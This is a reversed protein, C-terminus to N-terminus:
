RRRPPKLPPPPFFPLSSGPAGGAVCELEEETMVGAKAHIQRKLAELEKLSLVIGKEKLAAQVEFVTRMQYLAYVFAEDSFVEQLGKEDM